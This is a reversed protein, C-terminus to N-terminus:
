FQFCIVDRLLFAEDGVWRVKSGRACGVTEGPAPFQDGWRQELGKTWGIEM